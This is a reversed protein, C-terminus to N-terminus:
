LCEHIKSMWFNFNEKFIKKGQKTPIIQKNRFSAWGMKIANNLATEIQKKTVDGRPDGETSGVADDILHNKPCGTKHYCCICSLIIFEEYSIM